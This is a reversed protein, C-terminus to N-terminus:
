QRHPYGLKETLANWKVPLKIEKTVPHNYWCWFFQVKDRGLDGTVFIHIEEPSIIAPLVEGPGKAEIAEFERIKPEPVRGEMLYYRITGAKGIAGDLFRAHLDGVTVTTHEWLYQILDHKSFGGEAFMRATPPSMFLAYMDTSAMLWTKPVQIIKGAYDCLWTLAADLSKVDNFSKQPGWNFFGGITVTSTDKDFGRDVHYPEWPSQEENEAIAFPLPYGWTAMYTERPRFGALNKVALGLFRGIAPNPGLSIAGQEYKFDLEKIIPGNIVVFPVDCWTTGLHELNYDKDGIAEVIALLVPMFEPRCGAMVGNVAVNWPTAKLNAPPLTVIGENPPRDTFKLFEEVKEITPPIIPLGDSWKNELFFQNVEEFTGTFVVEPDKGYPAVSAEMEASFGRLKGVIDEFVGQELKERFSGETEHSFTGPFSVVPLGRVGKSEGTFTALRVFPSGVITVTPIGAKELAASARSVAPV